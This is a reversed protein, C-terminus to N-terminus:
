RWPERVIQTAGTERDVLLMEIQSYEGKPFFVYGSVTFNHRVEEPQLALAGIQQNAQQNARAQGARAGEFM